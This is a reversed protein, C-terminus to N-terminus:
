DHVQMRFVYLRYQLSIHVTHQLPLRFCLEGLQPFFVVGGSLLFHQRFKKFYVHTRVKDFVAAVGVPALEAVVIFLSEDFVDLVESAPSYLCAVELEIWESKHRRPRRTRARWSSFIRRRRFM